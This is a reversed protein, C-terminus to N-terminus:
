LIMAHFTDLYPTIEPGNKETNLSFVPFYPGSIVGCKSVKWATYCGINGIMYFCIIQNASCILQSTEMHHPVKGM